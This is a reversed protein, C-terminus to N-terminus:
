IYSVKSRVGVDMVRAMVMFVSGNSSRTAISGANAAPFVEKGMLLDLLLEVRLSRLSSVDRVM